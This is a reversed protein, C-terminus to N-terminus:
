MMGICTGLSAMARKLEYEQPAGIGRRLFVPSKPVPITDTDNEVQSTQDSIRETMRQINGQHECKTSATM